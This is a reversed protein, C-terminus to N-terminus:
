RAHASMLAVELITDGVEIADLVESGSVLAGFVTYRGDLHPTWRQTVFIQSGGSDPDENRPMGLSGRLFKRPTFEARLSDGRWSAGGNGDGRVDGGQIVFDPVVRHFTLKDYHHAKVLELFSVVHVPTEDPLLEFVMSGKSTRVEVRPNQDYLFDRGAVPVHAPKKESAGLKPVAAAPFSKAIWERAKKRVYPDEHALGKELIELAQEGGIAAASDLVGFAIESSIEGKSTEFCRALLPLDEARKEKRLAEIAALRLGNDPGDLLEHLRARAEDTPHNELAHTAIDAVRRNSDRTLRVLMPVALKSALHAAAAAAGARVLPNESAVATEVVKASEDGYLKAESELGAARVNASPDLRASELVKRVSEKCAVFNGFAEHVSRRVNASAHKTAAILAPVAECDPHKGLAIAAECVVRWDGDGLAKWLAANTAPDAAISALGQIAFIRTEPEDADNMREAFAARASECKRRMLSFVAPKRAALAAPDPEKDPDNASRDRATEILSADIARDDLARAAHDAGNEGARDQAGNSNAASSTASSAASNAGSPATSSVSQAPPKLPWRHPGLAAEVRVLPSPDDLARLVAGHLREDDIRSAAEILRARANDDKDNLSALLADAAAPDGREGIAFAAACRLKPSEDKLAACLAATVESGHEPFSLRGLAVAARVRTPPEGKLLLLELLGNGDSRADELDAITEIPREAPAALAEPSTRPASAAPESAAPSAAPPSVPEAPTSTPSM